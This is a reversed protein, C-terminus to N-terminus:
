FTDIVIVGTPLRQACGAVDFQTDDFQGVGITSVTPFIEAQEFAVIEAILKVLRDAPTVNVQVFVFVDIPKPALPVPLIGEKVAALTAVCCTAVIATVAFSPAHEPGEINKVIVILGFTVGVKVATAGIHEPVENDAKGVVDVLPIVPEQDGASFLVVVVVYM